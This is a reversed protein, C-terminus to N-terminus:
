IDRELDAPFCGMAWRNREAETIVSFKEPDMGHEIAYQRLGVEPQYIKNPNTSPIPSQTKNSISIQTELSVKKAKSDSVQSKTPTSTVGDSGLYNSIHTPSIPFTASESVKTDLLKASASTNSNSKSNAVKNNVSFEDIRKDYKIAFHYWYLITDQTSRIAKRFICVITQASVPSLDNTFIDIDRMADENLIGSSNDRIPMSIQQRLEQEVIQNTLPKDLSDESEVNQESDILILESSKVLASKIDSASTDQIQDYKRHNLIVSIQDHSKEHNERLKEKVNQIIEKSVKEKYTSDLFDDMEKDELLKPETHIPQYINSNSIDPIVPITSIISDNTECRISIEKDSHTRISPSTVQSESASDFIQRSNALKHKSEAELSVAVIQDQKIGKIDDDLKAILNTKEKDNQELKAFRIEYEKMDQRLKENEAEVEAFKKRLEPI